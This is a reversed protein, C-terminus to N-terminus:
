VCVSQFVSFSGSNTTDLEKLGIKPYADFSAVPRTGADMELPHRKSHLGVEYTQVIICHFCDREVKPYRSRLHHTLEKKVSCLHM